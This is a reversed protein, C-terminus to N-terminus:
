NAPLVPKESATNSIRTQLINGTYQIFITIKPSMDTVKECAEIANDLANGFLISWDSNKIKLQKNILVESEVEIHRAKAKTAKEALLADFIYNETNIIKTTASLTDSITSIYEEAQGYDKNELLSSLSLMHNKIDHRFGRLEENLQNMERYNAAQQHLSINLENRSRALDLVSKYLLAALGSFILAMACRFILLGKNIWGDQPTLSLTWTSNPLSFSEEQPQEQLPKSSQMIVQKEGTDPHIRWLEYAYSQNELSEMQAAKLAEPFHLVVGVFGWFYDKGDEESLYIPLRGVVGFGGQKLMFPGSLTLKGSDKAALAETRRKPDTFLNHGIAAENGEIPYIQTVIGDPALSISQIAYDTLVDKMIHDFDDIIGNGQKILAAATHTTYLQNEIVHQLKGAQSLAIQDAREQERKLLSTMSWTVIGISIVFVLFFVLIAYAFASRQTNKQNFANM